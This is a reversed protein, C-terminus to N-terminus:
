EEILSMSIIKAAVRNEPHCRASLTLSTEFSGDIEVDGELIGSCEFDLEADGSLSGAGKLVGAASVEISSSGVLNYLFGTGTPLVV